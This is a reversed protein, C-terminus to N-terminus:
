PELGVFIQRCELCYLVPNLIFEGNKGCKKLKM